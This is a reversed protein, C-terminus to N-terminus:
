YTAVIVFVQHATYTGGPTLPNINALYSITYRAAAANPSTKQALPVANGSDDYSFRNVTAYDPNLLDAVLGNGDPDFGFTVNDRLNFGFQETGPTSTFQTFTGSGNPSSPLTGFEHAGNWFGRTPGGLAEDHYSIVYGYQANTSACFQATAVSPNTLSLSAPSLTVLDETTNNPDSIDTQSTCDVSVTNAVRFVLSEGVNASTTISKATSTAVAGYELSYNADGVTDSYTTIRFFFTGYFNPNIFGDLGVTQLGGVTVAAGTAKILLVDQNSNIAYSWGTGLQGGTSTLTTSSMSAGAPTTCPESKIPTTCLQIRISRITDNVASHWSFDATNDSPRSTGLTVGRGTLQHSQGSTPPTPTPTPTPALTINASATADTYSNNHANLTYTGIINNQYYVVVTSTGTSITATGTPTFPISTLSYQGGGGGDTLTMVTPSAVNVPNNFADRATITLASTSAGATATISAPSFTFKALSGVNVTYATTANTLGTDPSDLPSQESGTLTFVGASNDRYYFDATASGNPIVVSTVNYPGGSSTAFTGTGSTSYLYVTTNTSVIIINGFEDKAGVTFVTSASGAAGSAPAVAYYFSAIAAPVITVSATADTYSNNHANLTYTGATTNRYYVTVSSTGTTITATATPTFPSSTLSFQGADGDSLTLVTPSGVNVPNDYVDRATIILAPTAVDAVTTTTPSFTFKALTTANVTYSTTANTLGTDPSDLPSQDSGTLTYSGATNDRYYFDATASGNPIVVSTINYPGGSTAAFTGTGSTSYLYVTTNSTVIIVNGLGDKAGVTFVTSAAGATGSAPAVFYYFSAISASTITVSATADTYSDNHANLTYTGTTANQYYVVVSSTGTTITATATPTFPSSTLSYQGGGGGDTLTMITNSGVNVPNNFTDRATITLPGTPTGAVTAATPSFTFKALTSANVTYATTANVLGTDPTPSPTQDSATLTYSGATNDKYYYSATTGGSPITISLTSTYTGGSTTSFTGTGSTSYLYVATNSTVVVVNGYLDHAGVSFVTSAAGATGSAPATTYYLSNITATTITVSATADTYSNNHATLTKVGVTNNRYYVVVTSTGTGITATGTPTFPSSTLSFQGGAGGDTLTMVTPSGVNVANGYTDQATIALSSTPAGAIATTSTPTFAFKNLTTANVTYATTANTIGTDPTPSPTQDSATLTYAGATADKYYYDATYGGSPITVSLTSTYTGGSTASFTGTGSSSYLYVTTNSGVLTVNGFVDKAGVTFVSSASGAAGSSPAVVYYLSSAAPPAELWMKLDGNTADYYSIRALGDTGVAIDTYYGVNASSDATLINSTTCAANTCKAYKLYGNTADYYSIRAFGDTGLAISPYQGVTGTTDVSTINSATCAANTCQAYKLDQNTLDYYGIRAFGDSGLTISTYYGVDGTTDVSTINKTTCAANTCQAFKLDGNTINYYYSIRAFGDSGLAISNNLGVNGATDVNTVNSATCAANTCQAFKLYGNTQNYYSIRAFGDSGLAISTFLGVDGTTDVSTVNSTTCAANTCQAFKLDKNTSDYYSIRAFGDTGLAISTFLGVAGTTDVSTVNKTSCDVNTCQAFKLDLNTGDYYSIRAFGDTGLAISTYGGVNGTTDVSSKPSSANAIYITGVAGPYNSSTGGAVTQTGTVAGTTAYLAIRGGGGGGYNTSAGAGGNATLKGAGTFANAAIWISGGSGGGSNSVNAGNANIGATANNNTFTGGVTLKVAGGGAAITAANSGIATPQTISGYVPGATGGAGTGGVGGYGGGGYNAGGAGPGASTYGRGSVDISSAANSDITVNGSVNLNLTYTQAGSNALHNVKGGNTITLSSINLAVAPTTNYSTFIATVGNVTLNPGSGSGLTGSNTFVGGTVTISTAGSLSGSNSFAYATTLAYSGSIVGANSSSSGLVLSGTLGSITGTNTLTLSAANIASTIGNGNITGANVLYDAAATSLNFTNATLTSGVPVTYSGYNGITFSDYTENTGVQTTTVAGPYTNGGITLNGYTSTSNFVYITGGGGIYTNGNYAGGTATQTGTVAGTTAYLAIRGGGGGGYRPDNSASGGNATIVGTGGFANAAIWVSGGSGGSNVNGGNALVGATTNNNTFTGGVTLKVAGGGATNASSNSGLATPQTVSGYTPGGYSDGAAGGSGRGGYGGGPWNVATGQGPGNSTFGKASVDIAASAAITVNGAVNLNLTYAQTSTNAKHTVRSSGNLALSALNLATTPTTNDSEFIASGNLTMAPGNGSGLTGNNTFTGGTITVSTAGALSGTNTLTNGVTLAYSGAITGSNTLSAVTLSTIGPLSGSNTLRLSAANIASLGNITGANILYNQNVSNLNYTSATLTYGSPVTYSAYNGLTFTDYTENTNLQPNTPAPQAGSGANGITLNGYTSTSTFTYITGGNGAQYSSSTGGAAAQTGTVAGTTAYLAIRGGGGAGGLCTGVGGNATLNGTGSFANASIWISGGSGGPCNVGGAGNAKVGATANNNTFTGGVTLKIAGGGPNSTCGSGGHGSGGIGGYSGGKCDTGGSNSGLDTPQTISGYPNAGNAGPGSSTYGRDSVDIAGAAAITLNGGVSMSLVSLQTTTNAAHTLVGYNNVTVNATVILKYGNATNGGSLTLTEPTGSVGAITLSNITVSGSALNLTPQQSTSAPIIVDDTSCPVRNDVWNSATAWDTNTPAAKWTSGTGCTAGLVGGNDGGGAAALKTVYSNFYNDTTFSSTASQGAAGGAGGAGGSAGSGGPTFVSQGGPSSPTSTTSVARQSVNNVNVPNVAIPTPTSSGTQTPPPQTIFFLFALVVAFIAGGTIWLRKKSRPKASDDQADEGPGDVQDPIATEDLEEAPESKQKPV